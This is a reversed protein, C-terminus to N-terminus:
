KPPTPKTHTEPRHKPRKVRISITKGLMSSMHTFMPHNSLMTKPKKPPEPKQEPMEHYHIREIEVSPVEYHPKKDDIGLSNQLLELTQPYYDNEVVILDNFFKVLIGDSLAMALPTVSRLHILIHQYEKDPLPDPVGLKHYSDLLLMIQYFFFRIKQINPPMSLLESLPISFESYDGDIDCFPRVYTTFATSVSRNPEELNLKVIDKINQLTLEPEENSENM